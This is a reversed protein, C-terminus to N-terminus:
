ATRKEPEVFPLGLLNYVDAEEPTEIIEGTSRNQIAGDKVQLHSPLLGGQWKPTVFAHSYEAPGTRILFQVGWQAPPTVIFLDLQSGETLGVKKYKHGGMELRGIASYEFTDLAHEPLPDGFMDALTRPIAVLEIDGVEPKRRRISGAIEIRECLPALHELVRVAIAEADALPIRQKTM